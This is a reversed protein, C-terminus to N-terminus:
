REIQLQVAALDVGCHQLLKIANKVHNRGSFKREFHLPTGPIPPPQTKRNSNFPKSDSHVPQVNVIYRKGGGGVGVPLNNRNLKGTAWLWAASHWPLDLWLRVQCETGDPLQIAVPMKEGPQYSSLEVWGQAPNPHLPVPTPVPLLPTPEPPHPDLIPESAAVPQGSALNPRWLLLLQLALKHAPTNDIRVDLVIKEALPRPDFTRYLQWHNGDTVGAYAIGQQICYGVAQDLHHEVFTGLRKAEIVAAPQNGQGKLAYDAWGVGARYELAVLGPDAPDWGLAQLIPNILTTRTRAERQGGDNRLFDGHEQIRKQLTEIISVLDDLM